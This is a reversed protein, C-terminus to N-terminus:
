DAPVPVESEMKGDVDLAVTFRSVMNYAGVAGVAEVMQRDDLFARLGDFVEKPVKVEKTMADALRMAAQLEPPLSSPTGNLGLQFPPALRIERLNETTLGAKRAVPEHKLRSFVTTTLKDYM